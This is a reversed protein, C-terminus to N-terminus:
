PRLHGHSLESKRKHVMPRYVMVLRAFLRNLSSLNAYTGRPAVASRTVGSARLQSPSCPVTKASVVMLSHATGTSSPSPSETSMLLSARQSWTMSAWGFTM